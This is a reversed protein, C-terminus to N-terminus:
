FKYIASLTDYTIKVAKDMVTQGQGQYAAEKKIFESKFSDFPSGGMGLIGCSYQHRRDIFLEKNWKYKNWDKFNDLSYISTNFLFNGGASRNVQRIWGDCVKDGKEEDFKAYFLNFYTKLGQIQQQRLNQLQPDKEFTNFFDAKGNCFVSFAVLTGLKCEFNEAEIEGAFDEFTLPNNVTRYLYQSNNEAINHLVNTDTNYFDWAAFAAMLEIYHCDNKQALGGTIVENGQQTPNPNWDLTQTGLMYFRKFYRKVTRDEDYFLMAAKSNLTFKDSTAIVKERELENADPINFHFYSTLLTSGFDGQLDQHGPMLSIRKRFAQIIIPISSAGTGGFVSGTIFIKAQGNEHALKSLFQTLSHSDNRNDEVIAKYMLMSGLHTQARYGHRLDFEEVDKTYFLDALDTQSHDRTHVEDYNFLEKFTKQRQYDPSFQYYEINASFFTNKAPEARGATIDQYAENLKKLRDFNGNDVDTDLALLHITTDDFMGAACLHILSEICRMGTGGIGLVFYNKM